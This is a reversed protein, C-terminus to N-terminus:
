LFLEFIDRMFISCFRWSPRLTQPLVRAGARETLKFSTNFSSSFLPRSKARLMLISCRRKCYWLRILLQVITTQGALPSYNLAISLISSCDRQNPKAYLGTSRYRYAPRNNPRLVAFASTACLMSPVRTFIAPRDSPPATGQEPHDQENNPRTSCGGRAFGV